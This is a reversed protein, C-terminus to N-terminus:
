AHTPSVKLGIADVEDIPVQAISSRKDVADQTVAKTNTLMAARPPAQNSHEKQNLKM